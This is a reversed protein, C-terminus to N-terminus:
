KNKPPQPKNALAYNYGEVFGNIQAEWYSRESSGISANKNGYRSHIVTDGIKAITEVDVAMTEANNNASLLKSVVEIFKSETMAQIVEGEKLSNCGNHSEEDVNEWTDAYCDSNEVFIQKLNEIQNDILIQNEIASTKHIHFEVGCNACNGVTDIYDKSNKDLTHYGSIASKEFLMKAGDLKQADTLESKRLENFINVNKDIIIETQVLDLLEKARKNKM